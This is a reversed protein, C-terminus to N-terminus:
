KDLKEEAKNLLIDLSKDFVEDIKEIHEEKFEVEIGFSADYDIGM